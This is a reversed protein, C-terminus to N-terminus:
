KNRNKIEQILLNLEPCKLIFALLLYIIGAMVSALIFQALAGCRLCQQLIFQATLGAGVTALFIKLFSFWIEKIGFNGVKKFFFIFLLVFELLACLNFILVLGLIPANPLNQVNLIQMTAQTFLNNANLWAPLNIFLNQGFFNFVFQHGGGFLAIFPLFLTINLVMAVIAILTPTLTDKISFFGRLLLPVLCQTAISLFYIGLAAATIAAASEDFKGTRYIIEVIQNRLIFILLGIPLAVFLIKNFTQRFNNYFEDKANNAWFKSLTPFIATAFSVGLIGIPLYSLNYSLNFVSIAGAGVIAAAGTAALFVLQSSCSAIIRPVVLRFFNQLGPHRLAIVPKYKYGCQIAAPIQIALHLFAGIVVGLGPGFIGFHPTLFVTGAIIGLNYFIPALSYVVFRQFYNLITSFISSLGFFLIAGFILRTLAIAEGQYAIPFSGILLTILDPSFIFFVIFFVAYLIIFLNLISNTIKWAEAQNKKQYESFIPLFSVLIGGAFIISYILDPIKFAAYYIDLDISAGFAGALLRDRILGLFRSLFIAVMMIFAAFSVSKQESNFFKQISM